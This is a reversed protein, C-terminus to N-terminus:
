IPLVFAHMLTKGTPGRASDPLPDETRQRLIRLILVQHDVGGDHSGVLLGRRPPFFPSPDPKPANGHLTSSWSEGATGHVPGVPLSEPLRRALRRSCAPM